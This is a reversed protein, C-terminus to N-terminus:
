GDFAAKEEMAAVVTNDVLTAIARRLRETVAQDSIDFEEALAKTSIGRPISYYGAGVARVLTERQPPTLGYFPGGEPRTPNYIRGLEVGIDNDTCYEQFTSLAEHTGFRLEFEWTDPGGTASLLHADAESLGAFFADESVTWDLAYLVVEDHKSVERLGGVAAHTRIDAEFAPGIDGYVSFLPVAKEGLPVLNELQVSTGGTMSLIKGLEFADASVRLHAIVAM